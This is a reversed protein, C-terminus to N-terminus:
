AVMWRYSGAAVKTAVAGYGYYAVQIQGTAIVNTELRYKSSEYWTYAQPNIVIMTNDGVGSGDTLARSVRLNLGGINGRINTPTLNGSANQPNITQTFVARNSGDVLGMLAGWQEPSVVINEAFGLTGKYISVAADSIFDQINAATLTRNGGDTGGNILATGVAADTASAYAFEMQRVLEAFFAPSSRDLLEVSFEQRGAFKTVPVSIFAVNQDREAPANGEATAAVLPTQTLKPIEFSMGADPLSATTVSDIFPRDANSLPNIVETLQRTPILGANDTTDAAAAIYQRADHDNLYQARLTNELFKEKTFELRPKTYLSATVTPRSADVAPTEVVPTDVVAAPTEVETASVVGNIAYDVIEETETKTETSVGADTSAAVSLVEATRFAAAQVLSVELLRASSVRYVGNTNKGKIVEVGVSLGSRLNESAEILSDTGRTTNSVKFEAYIGSEDESVNRMRGIPQKPDHELLLKVAKVDEIEISGKEFIVKGASTDGIENEFPVIKGAIVRRSESAELNTSFNIIEM